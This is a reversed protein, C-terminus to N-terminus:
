RLKSRPYIPDRKDKEFIDEDNTRMGLSVRRNHKNAKLDNKLKYAYVELFNNSRLRPIYHTFRYVENSESEEKAALDLLAEKLIFLTADNGARYPPILLVNNPTDPFDEPNTTVIVIKDLDRGM